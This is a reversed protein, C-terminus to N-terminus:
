VTVRRPWGIGDYATTELLLVEVFKIITTEETAPPTKRMVTATARAKAMRFCCLRVAPFFCTLLLWTILFAEAVLSRAEVLVGLLGDRAGIM